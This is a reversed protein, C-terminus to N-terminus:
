RNQVCIIIMWLVSAYILRGRDNERDMVREAAFFDQNSITHNYYNSGDNGNSKDADHQDERSNIDYRHDSGKWDEEKYNKRMPWENIHANGFRNLEISTAFLPKINVSTTYLLKYGSRNHRFFGFQKDSFQYVEISHYGPQLNEFVIRNGVQQDRNGDVMVKLNTNSEASVTLRTPAFNAFSALSIFIGFGLTSIKKM